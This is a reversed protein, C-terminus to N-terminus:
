ILGDYSGGDLQINQGSIFGAHKSCLFACTAGFEKPDGFRNAAITAMIQARAEERTVDQNKMIMETMFVQRDTDFREPLLNNITVNNKAVDKSIAKSFATLGARASTSLSMLPHPSKVMASTINIVRGFNRDVMGPMVEKIMFVASLMNADLAKLWQDRNTDLFNAPPPGSNNTVLIDPNPCNEIIKKRGEETDLDAVVMKVRKEDIESLEEFTDKLTEEGRANILVTAGEELLSRACSKGLGKSSACVIAKKKEIGLDM